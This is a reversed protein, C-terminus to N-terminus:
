NYTDWMLEAMPVRRHCCAAFCQGNKRLMDATAVNQRCSSFQLVSGVHQRGEPQTDETLELYLM